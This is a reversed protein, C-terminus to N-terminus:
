SQRFLESLRRSTHAPILFCNTWKRLSTTFAVPEYGKHYAIFHDCAFFLLRLHSAAFHTAVRFPLYAKRGMYSFAHSPLCKKRSYRSFDCAQMCIQRAGRYSSFSAFRTERLKVKNGTFYFVSRSSACQPTYPLHRM